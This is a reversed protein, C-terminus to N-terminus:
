LITKIEDDSMEDSLIGKMTKFAVDPNGMSNKWGFCELYSEVNKVIHALLGNLDNDGNAKMYDIASLAMFGYLYNDPGEMLNEKAYFFLGSLMDAYQTKIIIDGPHGAESDDKDSKIIVYAGGWEEAPALVDEVKGEGIANKLNILNEKKNM